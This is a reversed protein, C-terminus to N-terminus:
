ADKGTRLVVCNWVPIGPVSRARRFGAARWRGSTATRVGSCATPTLSPHEESLLYVGSVAPLPGDRESSWVSARRLRDLLRPLEDALAEFRAIGGEALPVPPGSQTM